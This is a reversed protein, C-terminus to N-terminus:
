SDLRYGQSRAWQPQSNGPNVTAVRGGFGRVVANILSPIQKEVLSVVIPPTELLNIGRVKPYIDTLFFYLHGVLVGVVDLIVSDMGGMLVHLFMLCFPFHWSLFSFGWFNIPRYPDKRAAVHVFLMMMSPGYIM